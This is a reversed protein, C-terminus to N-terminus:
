ENHGGIVSLQEALKECEDVCYELTRHEAEGGFSNIRMPDGNIPLDYIHNCDYGFYWFDVNDSWNPMGSYTLGGHVDVCFVIKNDYDVGFLNSEIPVGVYGCRYGRDMMAVVADLGSKTKWQKEIKM